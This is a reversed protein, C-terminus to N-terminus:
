VEPNGKHGILICEADNNSALRVGRHVNTVLPCTADYLVLNKKAAAEEVMLSVGHASFIGVADDPVEDVEKVFVVGKKKLSDV